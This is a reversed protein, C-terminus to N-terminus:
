REPKWHEPVQRDHHGTDALESFTTFFDTGSFLTMVQM